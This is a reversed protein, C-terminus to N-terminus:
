QHTNNFFSFFDSSVQIHWVIRASRVTSENGGAPASYAPLLPSAMLAGAPVAVVSGHQGAKRDEDPMEEVEHELRVSIRQVRISAHGFVPLLFSM